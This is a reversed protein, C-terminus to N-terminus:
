IKSKRALLLSMYTKEKLIDQRKTLVLEQDFSVHKIYYYKFQHAELKDLTAELNKSTKLIAVSDVDTLNMKEADDVLLFREGKEVVNKLISNAGALFAPIGPICEVEIHDHVEANIMNMFTSYIMSDGITLFVGTQGDKINEDIQDMAEIYTQRTTKGMPFDLLVVKQKKIYPQASDLAMNRGKNNPAFIIDASEILRVAKVTLLEPDGPGTGIGYLKKM